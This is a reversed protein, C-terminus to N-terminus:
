FISFVLNGFFCTAPFYYSHFINIKSTFFLLHHMYIFLHIFRHFFKIINNLAFNRPVLILLHRNKYSINTQILLM